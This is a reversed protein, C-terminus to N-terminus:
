EVYFNSTSIGVDFRGNTVPIIDVGNQIFTFEFEGSLIAEASQGDVFLHQARKFDLNGNSIKLINEVGFEDRFSVRCNTQTLDFSKQNLLVLSTYDNINWNANAIKFTLTIAQPTKSKLIGKLNFGLTDKSIFITAPTRTDSVFSARDYYAGFTNYGWESYEPLGNYESDSVWISEDLNHEKSCSCLAIIIAIFIYKKM